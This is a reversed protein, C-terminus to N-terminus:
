PTARHLAQSYRRRQDRIWADYTDRTDAVHMNRLVPHRIGRSDLERLTLENLCQIVSLAGISSLPCLPYTGTGGSVTVTTDGMPMGNDLLHVRDPSEEAIHWFTKGSSHKPAGQRAQERCCLLVLPNRPHMQRWALAADVAATTQGTASIALLPEHPGVDVEALLQRGLGEVKEITQNLRIGNPGVVDVFTVLGAQLLPHFGTLAGIRICLEEVAIRSHGNAYVHVVGGEGLANAFLRAVAALAAHQARLSLRVRELQDPFTLEPPVASPPMSRLRNRKTAPLM